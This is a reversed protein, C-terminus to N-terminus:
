SQSSLADSVPMYLLTVTWFPIDPPPYITPFSPSSTHNASLSIPQYLHCSHGQATVFPYTCPGDLVRRMCEEAILDCRRHASVYLPPRLALAPLSCHVILASSSYPTYVSLLMSM